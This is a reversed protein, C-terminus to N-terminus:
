LTRVGEINSIKFDINSIKKKMGIRWAGSSKSTATLGEVNSSVMLEDFPRGLPKDFPHLPM